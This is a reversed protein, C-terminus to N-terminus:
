AVLDATLCLRSRPACSCSIYTLAVYRPLTRPVRPTSRCRFATHPLPARRFLDSVCTGQCALSEEIGGYPKICMTCNILNLCQRLIAHCIDFNLPIQVCHLNTLQSSALPLIELGDFMDFWTFTISCLQPASNFVALIDSWSHGDLSEHSPPTYLKLDLVEASGVPLWLLPLFSIPSMILTIEQYCNIYPNILVQVPDEPV